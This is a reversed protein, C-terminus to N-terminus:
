GHEDGTPQHTPASTPLPQSVAERVPTERHGAEAYSSSVRFRRALRRFEAPSVFGSLSGVDGEQDIAFYVWNGEPHRTGHHRDRAIWKTTM